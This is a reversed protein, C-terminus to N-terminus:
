STYQNYIFKTSEERIEKIIIKFASQEWDWYEKEIILFM